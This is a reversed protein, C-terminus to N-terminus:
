KLSLGMRSHVILRASTVDIDRRTVNRSRKRTVEKRKESIIQCFEAASSEASNQIVNRPEASLSEEEEEEEEGGEGSKRWGRM